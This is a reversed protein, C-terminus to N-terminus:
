NPTRTRRMTTRMRKRSWRGITNLRRRAILGLPTGLVAVVLMLGQVRLWELMVVGDLSRVPLNQIFTQVGLRSSDGFDAVAVLRLLNLGGMVGLVLGIMALWVWVRRVHAFLVTVLGGTVLAACAVAIAVIYLGDERWRGAMSDPDHWGGTRLSDILELTPYGSVAEQSYALSIGLWVLLCLGVLWLSAFAQLGAWAATRWWRVARDLEAHRRM